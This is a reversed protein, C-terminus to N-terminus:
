RCPPVNTGVPPVCPSFLNHLTVEVCDGANVRLILPIPKQRGCLVDKAQKLPIFLLGEPAHALSSKKICRM